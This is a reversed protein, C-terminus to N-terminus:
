DRYKLLIDTNYLNRLFIVYEGTKKNLEDAFKFHINQSKENLEDVASFANGKNSLYSNEKCIDLQRHINDMLTIFNSMCIMLELGHKRILDAFTTLVTLNDISSFTTLIYNSNKIASKVVDNTKQLLEKLRESMDYNHSYLLLLYKYTALDEACELIEFLCKNRTEIINHQRQNAFSVEQKVSEITKTLEAIDEKTALNKGKEELYAIDTADEKNAKNEGKRKFYSPLFHILLMGLLISLANIIITTIISM